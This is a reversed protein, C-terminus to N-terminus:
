IQFAQPPAPAARTLEVRTLLLEDGGVVRVKWGGCGPCLLRNPAVEAEAGCDSCAVRAPLSQLQLRARAALTGARAIVFARELLGPEVGALVGVAVTVAQVEDAGQASAVRVVEDVLGQCVALEHV